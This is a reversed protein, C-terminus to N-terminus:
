QRKLPRTRLRGLADVRTEESVDIVVREREPAGVPPVEVVPWEDSGPTLPIPDPNFTSLAGGRKRKRKKKKNSTSTSRNTRPKSM